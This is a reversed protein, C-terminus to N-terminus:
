PFSLLPFLPVTVVDPILWTLTPAARLWTFTCGTPLHAGVRSPPNLGTCGSGEARSTLVTSCFGHMAPATSSWVEGPHADLVAEPCVGGCHCENALLFNCFVFFVFFFFLLFCLWALGRGGFRCWCLGFLCSFMACLLLSPLLLEMHQLLVM